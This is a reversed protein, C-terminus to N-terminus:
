GLWEYTCLKATVWVGTCPCSLLCWTRRIQSDQSIVARAATMTPPAGPRSCCVGAFYQLHRVLLLHDNRCTSAVAAVMILRDSGVVFRVQLDEGNIVPLRAWAAIRAEVAEVVADAKRRCASGVPLLVACGCLGDRM